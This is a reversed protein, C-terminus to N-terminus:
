YTIDVPLMNMNSINHVAQDRLKSKYAVTRDVKICIYWTHLSFTMDFKEYIYIADM